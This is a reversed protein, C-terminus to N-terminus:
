LDFAERITAELDVASVAGSHTEVVNGDSDIFITTPVSFSGFSIYLEGEADEILMYSVGTEDM